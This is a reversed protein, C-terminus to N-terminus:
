DIQQIVFKKGRFTFIYQQSHSDIPVEEVSSALQEALAVCLLGINGVNSPAAHYFNGRRDVKLKSPMFPYTLSGGYPYRLYGYEEDDGSNLNNQILEQFVVPPGSSRIFNLEQGCKSVYRYKERYQAFINEGDKDDISRIPQIQRFFFNLLREEKLATTFNRIKTGEFFVMGNHDIDYFYMRRVANSPPMSPSPTSSISFPM